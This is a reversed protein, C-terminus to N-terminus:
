YRCCLVVFILRNEDLIIHGNALCTQTRFDWMMVNRQWERVREIERERVRERESDSEREKM